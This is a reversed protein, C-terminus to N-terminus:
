WPRITTLMELRHWQEYQVKLKLTHSLEGLSRFSNNAWIFEATLLLLMKTLLMWTGTIKSEVWNILIITIALM